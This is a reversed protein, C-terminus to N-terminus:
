LTRKEPYGIKAVWEGNIVPRTESVSLSLLNKAADTFTSLPVVIVGPIMPSALFPNNTIRSKLEEFRSQSDTM